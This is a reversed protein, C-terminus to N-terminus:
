DLEYFIFGVVLAIGLTAILSYVRSDAPTLAAKAADIAHNATAFAADEASAATQAETTLAESATTGLAAIAAPSEQYINLASTGSGGTYDIAQSGAQNAAANGGQTQKNTVSNDQVTSVTGFSASGSGASLSSNEGM